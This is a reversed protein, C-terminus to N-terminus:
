LPEKESAPCRRSITSGEGYADNTRYVHHTTIHRSGLSYFDVTIHGGSPNAGSEGHWGTPVWYPPMSLAANLITCVQRESNHCRAGGPCLSPLTKYGYNPSLLTPFDTLYADDVPLERM